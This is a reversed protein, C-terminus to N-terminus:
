SQCANRLSVTGANRLSSIEANRLSGRVKKGPVDIPIRSPDTDLFGTTFPRESVVVWTDHIMM